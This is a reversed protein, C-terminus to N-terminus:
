ITLLVSRANAHNGSRQLTPWWELLRGPKRDETWAWTRTRCEWRRCPRALQHRRTSSLSFAFPPRHNGSSLEWHPCFSRGFFAIKAQQDFVVVVGRPRLKSPSLARQLTNRTLRLRDSMGAFGLAGMRPGTSIPSFAFFHAQRPDGIAQSPGRALLSFANNAAKPTMLVAPTLRGRRGKKRQFLHRRSHMNHRHIMAAFAPQYKRDNRPLYGQVKRFGCIALIAPLFDFARSARAVCLIDRDVFGHLFPSISLFLV